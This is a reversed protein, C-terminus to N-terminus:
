WVLVLIVVGLAVRYAVFVQLSQRELWRLLWAIALYATLASVAFGVLLAAWEVRDPMTGVLDVLHHVVLLLMVPVSLLFSFRAAAPRTLGLARGATITVGSRSTGPVLALAQALGVVAVDQWGVGGVDRRRAGLWDALGLLLGFGISTGAIVLPDRAVGAVVGSFLLGALAVPVTGVLLAVLLFAQSGPVLAERSLARPAARLLEALDRRFYAIVAVLSGVHTAVDFRLGQDPWGVLYPLLILHATSSIPLFETIGQVVALVAAQLLSV